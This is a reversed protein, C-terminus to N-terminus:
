GNDQSSNSCYCWIRIMADAPHYRGCYVSVIVIYLGVYATSSHIGHYVATCVSIGYHVCIMCSSIYICQDCIYPQVTHL